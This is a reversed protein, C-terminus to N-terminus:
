YLLSLAGAGWFLLLVIISSLCTGIYQVFGSGKKDPNVGQFDVYAHRFHSAVVCAVLLCQCIFQGSM